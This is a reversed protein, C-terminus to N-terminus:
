DVSPGFKDMLFKIVTIVVILCVSFMVGMASLVSYSLWSGQPVVGSSVSQMYMMYGITALENGNEGFLTFLSLQHTFIGTLGIILYSKLTPFVMPLTIFWFEQLINVGDLQASEVVSDNINAMAGGFLLVNVGFGMYVNFFYVTAAKTAENDLLGKVTEGTFLNVFYIYVDTVVYKFIMAFVVGSILQPMFLIVRFLASCPYKKYIYFSFFISLALALLTCCVFTMLSNWIMFEANKLYDLAASFQKFWVFDINYGLANEKPSYEQFAMIIMSSNAYIYFICFQIVPLLVLSYYFIAQKRKRQNIM